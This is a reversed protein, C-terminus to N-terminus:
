RDFFHYGKFETSKIYQDRMDKHGLKGARHAILLSMWDFWYDNNLENRYKARTTTFRDDTIDLDRYATEGMTLVELARPVGVSPVPPMPSTKRSWNEKNSVIADAMEFHREYIHLSNSIHTYKGLGIDRGLERTLESALLEQFMTFAPVDYSIGLILDSSRMNVVLHVEDNRLFFQLSLTCPVDKKALISDQPSRIHIVARRSDPDGKLEEKVYEWQTWTDDITAAIRDHPKFIRSGYASNATEGDDSIKGWMASYNSIWETSDNGTLYWLLEAIVYCVSFKREPVYPLRDRPNEITFRVGLSEKIKQGRPASFFEPEDSVQKILDVYAETFNKYNNM